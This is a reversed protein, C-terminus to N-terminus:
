SGSLFRISKGTEPFVMQSLTSGGECPSTTDASGGAM